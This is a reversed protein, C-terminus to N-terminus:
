IVGEMKKLKRKENILEILKRLYYYLLVSLFVLVLALLIFVVLYGTQGAKLRFEELVPIFSRLIGVLNANFHFALPIAYVSYFLIVGMVFVFDIIKPKYYYLCLDFILYYVLLLHFLVSHFSLFDNFMSQANNGIMARPNVLLMVTAFLSYVFAMPKFIRTVKKGFFSSLPYIILFLSCFHMPYQAVGYTGRVLHITVKAIEIALLIVSIVIFPIRKYNDKKITFKMIVGIIIGIAIGVPIVIKDSFSYEFVNINYIYIRLFDVFNFKRLFAYSIWRSNDM